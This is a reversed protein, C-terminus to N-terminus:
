SLLRAEPAIPWFHGRVQPCALRSPMLASPHLRPEDREYGSPRLNLDQGRWWCLLDADPLVSPHEGPRAFTNPPPASKPPGDRYSATAETTGELRYTLMTTPPEWPFRPINGKLVLM